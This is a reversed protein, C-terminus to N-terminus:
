TEGLLLRLLLSTRSYAEYLRMPEFGEHRGLSSSTWEWLGGMGGQGQLTQGKEVVSVPNWEQFGVNKGALDSFLEHPNPGAHGNLKAQSPPSEPVGDNVLEKNVAPIRKANSQTASSDALADAYRYISRAEELTPIRGGMYAACASLENYSASVPWSLAHALPVVGFVTRVSKGRLYGTPFDFDGSAPVGNTEASANSDSLLWSAPIDQVNNKFMYEAYEGNTIPRAKAEFSKVNVKRSPKECDWGFYRTPGSDTEPDDLNITIDQSPITFWKNPVANSQAQNELAGFDSVQALPPALTKESQILIYLLTELHMAEHEYGLWLCRAISPNEVASGNAYFSRVRDRVRRQYELIEDLDPWNDPIESHAHCQEPNDVDPDIGREFISPYYSPETFKGATTDTIKIDLFTPIHGLYFICANRLKIPKDLLEEDPLMQRTATDWLNWLSDWEALSPVPGAAYDGPAAPQAYPQKAILHM